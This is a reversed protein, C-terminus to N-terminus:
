KRFVVEQKGRYIRCIGEVTEIVNKENLDEKYAYLCDYNYINIKGNVLSVFKLNHEKRYKFFDEEEDSEFIIINTIEENGVSPVACTWSENGILCCGMDSECQLKKM